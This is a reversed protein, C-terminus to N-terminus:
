TPRRVPPPAQSYGAFVEKRVVTPLHAYLSQSKKTGFKTIWHDHSKTGAVRYGHNVELYEFIPKFIYDDMTTGAGRHVYSYKARPRVM